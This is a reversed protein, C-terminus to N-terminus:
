RKRAQEAQRLEEDRKLVALITQREELTLFDLDLEISMETQFDASAGVLFCSIRLLDHASELLVYSM